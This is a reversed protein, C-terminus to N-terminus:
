PPQTVKHSGSLLAPDQKTMTSIGLTEHSGAARCILGQTSAVAKRAHVSSRGLGSNRTKNNVVQNNVPRVIPPM